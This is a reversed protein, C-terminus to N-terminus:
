LSGCVCVAALGLGAHIHSGPAGFPPLLLEMCPWPVWPAPCSSSLHPESRGCHPLPVPITDQLASRPSPPAPIQAQGCGATECGQALLNKTEVDTLHSHGGPESLGALSEPPFPFVPDRTATPGEM